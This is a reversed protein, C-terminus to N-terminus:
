SAKVQFSGRGSVVALAHIVFQMSGALTRISDVASPLSRVGRVDPGRSSMCGFYPRQSCFRGPSPPDRHLQSLGTEHQRRRQRRRGEGRTGRARLSRVRQMKDVRVALLAVLDLADAIEAIDTRREDVQLVSVRIALVHNGDDIVLRLPVLERHHRGEPAVVDQGLLFDLRDDIVEVLLLGRCRLLLPSVTIFSKEPAGRWVRRVMRFPATPMATSPRPPTLRM